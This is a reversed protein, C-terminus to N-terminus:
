ICYQKVLAGAAHSASPERSRRRFRRWRAPDGISGERGGTRLDLPLLGIAELRRDDEARDRPARGSPQRDGSHLGLSWLRGERVLTSKWGRCLNRISVSQRRARTRSPSRDDCVAFSRAFSSRILLPNGAPYAIFTYSLFSITIFSPLYFPTSHELLSAYETLSSASSSSSFFMVLPFRPDRIEILMAPASHSM